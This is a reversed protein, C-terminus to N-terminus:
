PSYITLIDCLSEKLVSDSTSSFFKAIGHKSHSGIVILDVNARRALDAISAKPTGIEAYCRTPSVGIKGGMEQLRKRAHGLLETELDLQYPLSFESTIDLPIAEVVHILSLAANFLDALQKVKFSISESNEGFHTAYLIHRYIRLKEEM